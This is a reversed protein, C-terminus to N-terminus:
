SRWDTFCDQRQVEEIEVFLQGDGDVRTEVNIDEYQFKDRKWPLRLGMARRQGLMYAARAAAQRHVLAQKITRALERQLERKDCEREDLAELLDMYDYITTNVAQAYRAAELENAALRPAVYQLHLFNLIRVPYLKDALYHASPVLVHTWSLIALTHLTWPLWTATWRVLMELSLLLSPLQALAAHLWRVITPRSQLMAWELELKIAMRLSHGVVNSHRDNWFAVIRQCAVVLCTAHQNELDSLQCCLYEMPDCPLVPFALYHVAFFLLSFVVDINTLSAYQWEQVAFAIDDLVLRAYRRSHLSTLYIPLGAVMSLVFLHLLTFRISLKVEWPTSGLNGIAWLFSAGFVPEQEPVEPRAFGSLFVPSSAPSAALPSVTPTATGTPTAPVYSVSETVTVTVTPAPLGITTTVHHYEVLRDVMRLSNTSGLSGVWSSPNCSLSAWLCGRLGQLISAM